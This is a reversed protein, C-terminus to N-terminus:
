EPAAEDEELIIGALGFRGQEVAIYIDEWSTGWRQLEVPVTAPLQGGEVARRVLSANLDGGEARFAALREDDLEGREAAEVVRQILLSWAGQDDLAQSEDDM